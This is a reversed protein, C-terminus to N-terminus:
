AEDMAPARARPRAADESKEIVIQRGVVSLRVPDGPKLDLLECLPKPIRVAAGNGARHLARVLPM